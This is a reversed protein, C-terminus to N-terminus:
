YRRKAAQKTPSSPISRTSSKRGRRQASKKRAMAQGKASKAIGTASAKARAARPM